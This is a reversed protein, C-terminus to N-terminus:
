EIVEDASTLLAPPVTLGLAKATKLNIVLEYKTPQQFPLDGAKEDRLIRDVYGASRRFLDISDAGYFALGGIKVFSSDWYIAPLRQRAVLDVVEHRLGLTTIDPLFFIGSNPSDALSTVARDIDALGHIPADVPEIALPGGAAEFTRKYFAANPNDPNYIMAVRVLGPAIQKLIELSKALMPLEFLAFGTVNGGPHALTKAYGVRVPDSGGPLVIPISRSLQVLIPVVRGGTAVVVDPKSTMLSAAQARVLDMNDTTWREDFQVNIGATWGLKRLEEKFAQVREQIEKDTPSYPMLIGVRRMRETQQAHAALPWAAVTGGLLTIFERRQM